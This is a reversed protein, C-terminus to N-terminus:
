WRPTRHSGVAPTVGLQARTRFRATDHSGFIVLLKLAQGALKTLGEGRSSVAHRFRDRIDQYRRVAAYQNIQQRGLRLQRVELCRRSPPVVPTRPARNPRAAM